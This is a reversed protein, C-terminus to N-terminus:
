RFLAGMNERQEQQAFQNGFRQRDSDTSSKIHDEISRGHWIAISANGILCTRAAEVTKQLHNTWM